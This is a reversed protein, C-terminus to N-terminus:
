LMLPKDEGLQFYLLLRSDFLMSCECLLRERLVRFHIYVAAKEITACIIQMPKKRHKAYTVVNRFRNAILLVM